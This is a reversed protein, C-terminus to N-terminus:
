DLFFDLLFDKTGPVVAYKDLDTIGESALVEDDVFFNGTCDAAPRNLIIYAADALIEPTRCAATDVGPIMALAATDIATRPWLANVGIGDRKFEASMGLVCMSMGYKAMTYAVHNKFWVPKMSLPPSLNLIHPNRGDAASKKLHPIVAQSTLFTGRVNVDFMLDFRKAPTAETKTLNIASANNILIDIGGFEQAAQAVAAEIQTEDRLDCQIPLVKGGAAKIEEAASYITGPLKPNVEATKAAIAISAGDRAARLAIALGIGRSGGTVFIKKGSLDGTISM